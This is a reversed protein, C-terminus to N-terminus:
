FLMAKGRGPHTIEIGHHLFFHQKKQSQLLPPFAITPSSLRYRKPRIGCFVQSLVIQYLLLIFHSHIIMQRATQLIQVRPKPPMCVFHLDEASPGKRDLEKLLPELSEESGGIRLDWRHRLDDSVIWGPAKGPPLRESPLDISYLKGKRNDELALGLEQPDLWRVRKLREM